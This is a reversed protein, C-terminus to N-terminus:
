SLASAHNDLAYKAKLVQDCFGLLVQRNGNLGQSVVQAVADQQRMLANDFQQVAQARPEELSELLQTKLAAQAERRRNEAGPVLWDILQPAFGALLAGAWAFPQIPNPFLLLVAFVGALAKFGLKVNQRMFEEFGINFQFDLHSRLSVTGSQFQLQELISSQLEDLGATLEARLWSALGDIQGSLNFSELEKKWRWKIDSGNRRYNDNAFSTARTDLASFM